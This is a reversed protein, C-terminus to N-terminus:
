AASRTARIAPGFHTALGVAIIFPLLTHYVAIVSDFPLTKQTAESKLNLM